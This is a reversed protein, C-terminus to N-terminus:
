ESLDQHSNGIFEEDHDEDSWKLLFLFELHKTIAFNQFKSTYNHLFPESSNHNWFEATGTKQGIKSGDHGSVEKFLM